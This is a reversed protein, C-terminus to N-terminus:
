PPITSSALAFTNNNVQQFTELLESIFFLFLIPSLPSGQLIGTATEILQSKYGTYIIRTTRATMFCAVIKTLWEPFGKCKLIYILREQSVNDFAGSLDLGLVSIISKPNATWATEISGRLLHLASLTSRNKRAGMQNWPLLEHKEAADAIREALIKEIVKALTNELAIPRYASPLSYDKKGQKRLAVTYSDKLCPPTIGSTLIKSAAQALSHCFPTVPEEDTGQALLKLIENPIEDPGPAKRSPLEKLVRSITEASVSQM